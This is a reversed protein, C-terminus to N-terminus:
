GVDDKSAEVKPRKFIGLHVDGSYRPDPVCAVLEWGADGLDLMVDYWDSGIGVPLYAKYYEWKTM